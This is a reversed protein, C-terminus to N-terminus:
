SILHRLTEDRHRRLLHTFPTGGTGREGRESAQERAQQLIYRATLEMHRQRFDSLLAICGNYAEVLAPERCRLLYDRVSAGREVSELFARHEPPMYRRLRLLYEHLSGEEHRVGLAADLLPLLTSQAASAGAFAQPQGGLEEVGEYRVPTQLFGHLYPQIRSFFISPECREPMRELAGRVGRQAESIVQLAHGLAEPSDRRAAEQAAVAAGLVPAGRSEIDVHALIFWAEDMGGLFTQLVVLNGLAVPGEPDIRRWNSLAHSAYSLVPPRGLRRAVQVWPVAIGRPVSLEPHQPGKEWVAAHGFFSLLLMARELHRAEELRRADLLPLRELRERARGAALLGPLAAGLEDWPAFAPPLRACPDAEPLFGRGQVGPRWASGDVRGAGPAHGEEM